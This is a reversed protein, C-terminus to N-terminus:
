PGLDQGEVQRVLAPSQLLQRVHRFFIQAVPDISPVMKCTQGQSFQPFSFLFFTLGLNPTQVKALAVPPEIVIYAIRICVVISVARSIGAADRHGVVASINQVKAPHVTRTAMHHVRVTHDTLEIHAGLLPLHHVVKTDAAKSELRGCALLQLEGDSTAPLSAYGLEEFVM